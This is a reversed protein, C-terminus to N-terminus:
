RPWLSGQPFFVTMKRSPVRTSFLHFYCKLSGQMFSKEQPTGTTTCRFRIQSTVMLNCTGDGAESLPNLIKHQQLQTTPWCSYSRNSGQGPFRWIGQTRSYFAFFLCFFVKKFHSERPLTHGAKRPHALSRGGAPVAGGNRPLLSGSSRRQRQM